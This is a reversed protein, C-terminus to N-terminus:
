HHYLFEASNVLAWALDLAASRADMGPSSGYTIVAQREQDTPPRSLITYYLADIVERPSGRTRVLAQIKPGQEIKKRIHTSNLLHLRQAATIRNNREAQMGTDRGPRGFTELFTSTISGDPLAVSRQDEPIFTFPEPIASAYKETTGSIQNLADILVEADLRRLPYFAFNAEAAPNESRAVSAFQYTTSTLITRFLRKLDYGSAVLEKELAALLEPNSPPNDPRLDDAEQVIGRGFFWSWARNAIARNFWPNQPTILWDAFVMRPDRDAALAATTGDPFAFHGAPAKLPLEPNFFVIEEKWEGTGKYGLRSFFVAM